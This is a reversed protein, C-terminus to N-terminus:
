FDHLACAVHSVGSRLLYADILVVVVDEVYVDISVHGALWHAAAQTSVSHCLVTVSPRM